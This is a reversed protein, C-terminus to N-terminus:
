QATDLLLHIMQIGAAHPSIVYPNLFLVVADGELYFGFEFEGKSLIDLADVFYGDPEEKVVTYFSQAVYSIAEEESMGIIEGITKKSGTKLDYTYAMQMLDPHAGGFDTYSNVVVSITNNDNYTVKFTQKLVFPFRFSEQDIGQVNDYFDRVFTSGEIFETEFQEETNAQIEQNVRDVSVQHNINEIQPYFFEGLLLVKDGTENLYQRRIVQSTMIARHMSISEKGEKVEKWLSEQIGHELTCGTLPIHLTDYSYLLRINTFTRWFKHMTIISYAQAIADM